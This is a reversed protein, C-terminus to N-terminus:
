KKDISKDFFNLIKRTFYVINQLNYIVKIYIQVFNSVYKALIVNENLPVVGSHLFFPLSKCYAQRM